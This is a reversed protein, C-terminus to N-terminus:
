PIAIRISRREGDSARIAMLAMACASVSFGTATAYRATQYLPQTRTVIARCLKAPVQCPVKSSSTGSGLARHICHPRLSIYQLGISRIITSYASRAASVIGSTLRCTCPTRYRKRLNPVCNCWLVRGSRQEDLDDRIPIRDESSAHYSSSSASPQRM